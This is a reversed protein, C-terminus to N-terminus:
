YGPRIPPPCGPVILPAITRVNGGLDRLGKAGLTTGTEIAIRLKAM